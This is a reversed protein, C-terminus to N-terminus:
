KPGAWNAWPDFKVQNKLCRRDKEKNFITSPRGVSRTNQAWAVFWFGNSLQIAGAWGVKVRWGNSPDPPRTQCSQVNNIFHICVLRYRAQSHYLFSKFYAGKIWCLWSNRYSCNSCWPSSCGSFISIIFNISNLLFFLINEEYSLGIM